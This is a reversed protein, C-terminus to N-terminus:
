RNKIWFQYWKKGLEVALITLKKSSYVGRYRRGCTPCPSTEENETIWNKQKGCKCIFESSNM